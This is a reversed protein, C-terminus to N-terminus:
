SLKKTKIKHGKGINNTDVKSTDVVIREINYSNLLNNTMEEYKIIAKVYEKEEILKVIPKIYENLMILSKEKKLSDEKLNYSIIPGITDYEILISKLSENKSLFNNRFNRLTELYYNDDSLKLTECIATTIYCSSDQKSENYEFYGSCAKSNPNYYKHYQTCYAENRNYRNRDELDMKLCERCYCYAYYYSM